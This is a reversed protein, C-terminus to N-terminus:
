GFRQDFRHIVAKSSELVVLVAFGMGAAMAMDPWAISGFQLLKQAYPWFLILATIAWISVLVYRLAPNTRRVAQGLSASFSRNVLILALIEAILAFFILARIEAAPMGNWSEAVFTPPKGGTILSVQPQCHRRLSAASITGTIRFDRLADGKRKQFVSM